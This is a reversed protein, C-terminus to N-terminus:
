IVTICINHATLHFKVIRISLKYNSTQWISLYNIAIHIVKQNM